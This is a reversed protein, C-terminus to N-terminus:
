PRWEPRFGERGAYANVLLRLSDDMAQRYGADKGQSYKMSHAEPEHAEEYLKLFWRKSNIDAVIQRPRNCDCGTDQSYDSTCSRAHINPAERHDASLQLELWAIQEKM